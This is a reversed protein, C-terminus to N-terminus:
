ESEEGGNGERTMQKCGSSSGGMGQETRIELGIVNINGGDKKCRWGEM